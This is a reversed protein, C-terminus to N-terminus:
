VSEALAKFRAMDAEQRKRMAGKMFPSLLRMLGGFQFESNMEWRTRGDGLDVFRNEITNSVGSGEYIGSFESPENRSTITEVLVIERGNENYTLQSVAGPQGPEGSKLEFSTLTPQWKPMNEPDDFIRWVDAPPKDIVTESQIQM